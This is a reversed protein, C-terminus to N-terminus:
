PKKFPGLWDVRALYDKYERGFAETFQVEEKGIFIMIGAYLFISAVLYVCTLTILAVASLIFFTMSSYTPNRVLGYVGTTVLKGQSFGTLLQPVGAGWLIIGM